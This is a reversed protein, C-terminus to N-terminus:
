GNVNYNECLLNMSKFMKYMYVFPGVAIFCGLVSWLWYDTASFSYEIGRRNLEAGIRNSIKHYWVVGYIGLTLSSLIAMVIFHTTKQGDYRGAVTNLDTGVACMVVLPYIGFTIMGLLICKLLSKNTKLAYVPAQNEM